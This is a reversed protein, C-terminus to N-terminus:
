PLQFVNCFLSLSLVDAVRAQTTTTCDDSVVFNGVNNATTAPVSNDNYVKQAEKEDGKARVLALWASERTTEKYVTALAEDDFSGGADQQRDLEDFVAYSSELKRLVRERCGKETKHELGRMSEDPSDGLGNKMMLLLTGEIGVTKMYKVERRTLWTARHEEQTFDRVHLTPRYDTTRSFRVTRRRSNNDGNDGQQKSEKRTDVEDKVFEASPVKEVRQILQLAPEPPHHIAIPM